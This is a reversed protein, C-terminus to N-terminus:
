QAHWLFWFFGRVLSPLTGSDVELLTSASAFVLPKPSKPWGNLSCRNSSSRWTTGFNIIDFCLIEQHSCLDKKKLLLSSKLCQTMNGSCFPLYLPTTFPIRLLLRGLLPCTSTHVNHKLPNLKWHGDIPAYFLVKLELTNLLRPLEFCHEKFTGLASQLDLNCSMTSSSSPHLHLYTLLHQAPAISSSSPLLSWWSLFEVLCYHVMHFLFKGTVSWDALDWTCTIRVEKVRYATSDIMCQDVHISQWHGWFLLSWTTNEYIVFADNEQCEWCFNCWYFIQTGVWSM